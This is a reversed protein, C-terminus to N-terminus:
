LNELVGESLNKRAARAIIAKMDKYDREWIEWAIGADLYVHMLQHVHAEWERVYQTTTEAKM